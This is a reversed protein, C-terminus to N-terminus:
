ICRSRDRIRFQSSECLFIRFLSKSINRLSDLRRGYLFNLQNVDNLPLVEVVFAHNKLLKKDNPMHGAENFLQHALLRNRSM